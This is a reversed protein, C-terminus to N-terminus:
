NDVRLHGAQILLHWVHMSLQTSSLSILLLSQQHRQHHGTRRM